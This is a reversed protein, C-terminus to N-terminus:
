DPLECTDFFCFFCNHNSLMNSNNEEFAYGYLKNNKTQELLLEHNYLDNHVISIFSADSKMLKILNDTIISRTDENSILSPFIFDCKQFLTELDVFEYDNVKQKRNWYKVKMGLAECNKAIENGISGLGIIGATKGELTRMIM